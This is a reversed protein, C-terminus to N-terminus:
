IIPQQTNGHHWHALFEQPAWPSGSPNSAAGHAAQATTVMDDWAQIPHTTVARHQLQAGLDAIVTVSHQFAVAFAHHSARIWNLDRGRCLWCGCRWMPLTPKVLYAKAFRDAQVYTLLDPVVFALKERGGGPKPPIPFNHRLGSHTGVGAAVAGHAIAGLASTDTRLFLVPVSAGHLLHILGDVVGAAGCPDNKHELIVAVPKDQENILAVIAPADDRLVEYPMALPVIVREPLAHADSLVRAIDSVTYAFGPDAMAWPLGLVTLQDTVWQTSMADTVVARNKGSYRNRDILIDATPASQRTLTVAARANGFHTSKRGLHEITHVVGVGAHAIVAAATAAEGDYAQVLLNSSFGPLVQRPLALAPPGVVTPPQAPLSVSLAPLGLPLVTSQRPENVMTAEKERGTAGLIEITTVFGVMADVWV